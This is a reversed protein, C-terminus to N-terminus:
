LCVVPDRELTQLQQTKKPDLVRNFVSLLNNLTLILSRREVIDQWFDDLDRNFQENQCYKKQDAARKFTAIFLKTNSWEIKGPTMLRHFGATSVM